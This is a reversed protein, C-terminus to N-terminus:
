CGLVQDVSSCEGGPPASPPTDPPTSPPTPAPPPPAPRTPADDNEGSPPNSPRPRREPPRRPPRDNSRGDGGQRRRSRDRRDGQRDPRDRRDGRRDRGEKREKREKRRREAALLQRRVSAGYLDDFQAVLGDDLGCNLCFGDREWAVARALVQSAYTVGFLDHGYYSYAGWWAGSDLSRGAGSDNLLMGAAMIADFDDYVSPHTRTRHPYSKPRQGERFAQRYLDWTSPPGNKVNFQMPGACCGFANLGRYTSPETSFATEQRHISAILRWNVGFRREAERYLPLYGARATEPVRKRATREYYAAGGRSPRRGAREAARKRASFTSVDAPAGAAPPVTPRSPEQAARPSSSNTGMGVAAAAGALMVLVLLARGRRRGLRSLLRTPLRM